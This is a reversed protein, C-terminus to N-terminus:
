KGMAVGGGSRAPFGECTAGTFAVHRGHYTSVCMANRHLVGHQRGGLGSDLM